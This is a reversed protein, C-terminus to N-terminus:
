IQGFFIKMRCNKCDFQIEYKQGKEDILFLPETPKKANKQKSCFGLSYKLCHKTEMVQKKNFDKHSSHELGYEEINCGCNEYFQKAKENTINYKYNLLKNELLPHNIVTQKKVTYNKERIIQFETILKRRIDNIENIKIFPVDNQATIQIKEAYFETEGLKALQKKLNEEAKEKNQAVEFHNEFNISHSFKKDFISISISNQRIDTFIKVPIKRKIKANELKKLYKCDFNRYIELGKKLNKISNPFIWGNEIKDIKTGCLEKGTLNKAFFTIGDGINLSNKDLKFGHKNIEIIKGVFEGRNKPTDFATIDKNRGNLFYTCYGRNFSKNIDFEFDTFVVGWSAKVKNKKILIKDLEKRYFGVVNKVYNVDKLRGEIKFSTVGADVLKELYNTANFDKLCLLHRNEAIKNGNSDILSYKKRCAQACEGRNASRGGIAYSMYCQGSYSVCLAGHIFCELEISTNQSINKIEELSLERALVAREFGTKELFNVKELTTNHCQTSAHLPIPPLDLELLGFDQIILADTGIKYLNNILDKAAQLENDFLVTNITVYVKVNFKHAYNIIEAIDELSNGANKRAGFANAGIYIADAGCNIAAFACEKDKAPALLEIQSNKKM